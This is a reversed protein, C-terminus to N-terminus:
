NLDGDDQCSVFSQYTGSIVTLWVTLYRDNAANVTTEKTRRQESNCEHGMRSVFYKLMKLTTM